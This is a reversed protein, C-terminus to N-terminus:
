LLERRQKIIKAEARIPDHRAMRRLLNDQFAPSQAYLRVKEEIREINMQAIATQKVQEPTAPMGDEPLYEIGHRIWGALEVRMKELTSDQSQLYISELIANRRARKQANDAKDRAQEIIGLDNNRTTNRM